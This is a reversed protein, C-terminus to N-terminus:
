LRSALVDSINQRPSQQKNESFHITAWRTQSVFFVAAWTWVRFSHGKYLCKSSRKENFTNCRQQYWIPSMSSSRVKTSLGDTPSSWEANGANPVGWNIPSTQWSYNWCGGNLKWEGMSSGAVMVPRENRNIVPTQTTSAYDTTVM